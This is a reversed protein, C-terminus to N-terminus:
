AKVPAGRWEIDVGLGALQDAEVSCSDRGLMEAAVKQGAHCRLWLCSLRALAAKGAFQVRYVLGWSRGSTMALLALSTAGMMGM